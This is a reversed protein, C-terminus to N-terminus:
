GFLRYNARSFRVVIINNNNNKGDDYRALLVKSVAFLYRSPLSSTSPAHLLSDTKYTM